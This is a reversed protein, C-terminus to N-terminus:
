MQKVIASLSEDPTTLCLLNGSATEARVGETWSLLLPVSHLPSSSACVLTLYLSFKASMFPVAELAPSFDHDDSWM